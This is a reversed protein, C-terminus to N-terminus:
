TVFRASPWSPPALDLLAPILIHLGSELRKAPLNVMVVARYFVDCVVLSRSGPVQWQLHDPLVLFDVKEVSGM